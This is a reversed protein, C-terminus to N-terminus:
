NKAPLPRPSMIIVGLPLRKLKYRGFSTSFTTLHSLHEELQIPLYGSWAVCKSFFKAGAIKSVADELTPMTYHPRKIEINLNRPDLCVRLKGNPKEVIVVLSSVWDTSETVREIVNQEVMDDLEEKKDKLAHPVRRPADIVPKAYPKAEIRAIGTDGMGSFLHSYERKVSDETMETKTQDVSLLLQVLQLDICPKLGLISQTQMYVVHFNLNLQKDIHICKINAAGTTNLYQGTYSKQNKKLTKFINMPLINAQTGMDIKFSM